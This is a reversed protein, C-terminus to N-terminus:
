AYKAATVHRASINIIWVHRKIISKVDENNVHDNDDWQYNSDNNNYNHIDRILMICIRLMIMNLM